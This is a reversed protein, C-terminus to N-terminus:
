LTTNMERKFTRVHLCHPLTQTLMTSPPSFMRVDEVDGAVPRYWIVQKTVSSSSEVYVALDM